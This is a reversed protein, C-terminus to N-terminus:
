KRDFVLAKRISKILTNSRSRSEKACLIAECSSPIKLKEVDCGHGMSQGKSGRKAATFNSKNWTVITDQPNAKKRKGTFSGMAAATQAFGM